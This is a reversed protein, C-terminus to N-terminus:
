AKGELIEHYVMEADDAMRGASYYKEVIERGYKGLREQDEEWFGFFIGIDQALTEATMEPCGKGSFVSLLGNELKDEDFLGMYGDNSAIIVPKKLAMACLATNNSSIVLKSVAILEGIDAIEGLLVIAERGLADNSSKVVNKITEFEDCVGVIICKLNEVILDLKRVAEILKSCVKSGLKDSRCLYLVINEEGTIGFEKTLENKDAAKFKESDIGKSTLVVDAETLKYNDLLYKKINEDTVLIKEGWESSRKLTYKKTGCEYLTTILPLKAKKHLKNLIPLPNKTHSHILEINEDKVFRLLETYSHSKSDLSLTIHKKGFFEAELDVDNGSITLVNHGRKKLEELLKAASSKEEADLKYFSMLINM